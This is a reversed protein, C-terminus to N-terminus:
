SSLILPVQRGKHVLSSDYSSIQGGGRGLMWAERGPIPEKPVHGGAGYLANSTDYVHKPEPQQRYYGRPPGSSAVSSAISSGALSAASRRSAGSANSRISRGSRGSRGSPPRRTRDPDFNTDGPFQERNPFRRLMEPHPAKEGTAFGEDYVARMRQREFRPFDNAAGHYGAEASTVGAVRQDMVSRAKSPESHAVGYAGYATSWDTRGCAGAIKRNYEASYSSAMGDLISQLVSVTVSM